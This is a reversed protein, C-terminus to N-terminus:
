TTTGRDQTFKDYKQDGRSTVSMYYDKYSLSETLLTVAIFRCKDCVFIFSLWNQGTASIQTM